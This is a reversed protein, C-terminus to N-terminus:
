VKTTDKGRSALTARLIGGQGSGNGDGKSEGDGLGNAAYQILAHILNRTARAAATTDMGEAPENTHDDHSGHLRHRAPSSSLPTRRTHALSSTQSSPTSPHPSNPQEVPGSGSVARRSPRSTTSSSPYKSFASSSSPFPSSLKIRGDSALVFGSCAIKHIAISPHTLPMALHTATHASLASIFPGKTRPQTSSALVSSPSPLLSSSSPHPPHPPTHDPSPRKRKRTSRTEPTTITNQPNPPPVSQSASSDQQQRALQRRGMQIFNWIDTKSITIDLTKLLPAVPPAFRLSLSLDKISRSAAEHSPSENDGGTDEEHDQSAGFGSDSLFEEIRECLRNSSLTFPSARTDFASALYELFTRRLASPMRTLLLPLHTFGEPLASHVGIRNNSTQAEQPPPPPSPAREDGLLIAKYTAREYRVEVLIGHICTRDGSTDTQRTDQGPAPHASTDQNGTPNGNNPEGNAEGQEQNGADQGNGKSADRRRRTRRQESAWEEESGLVSWSCDLLAGAKLLTDDNGASSSLGVQVERLSDGKLVNRLRRAHKTLVARDFLGPPTTNTASSSPSAHDTSGPALQPGAGHYLPSLIHAIFTTGYIPYPQYKSPERPAM